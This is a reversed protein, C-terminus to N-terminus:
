ENTNTTLYAYQDTLPTHRLRTQDTFGTTGSTANTILPAPAFQCLVTEIITIFSYASAQWHPTATTDTLLTQRLSHSIDRWYLVTVDPEDPQTGRLISHTEGDDLQSGTTARLAEHNTKPLLLYHDWARRRDHHEILRATDPTKAYNEDDIKVEISIGTEPYQILVDARRDHTTDSSLPVDCQVRTPSETGSVGFLDTTFSPPATDCLHALWQSWNEEQATRLPGDDRWEACLPDRDFCTASDRWQENLSEFLAELNAITETNTVSAQEWWDDVVHWQAAQDIPM